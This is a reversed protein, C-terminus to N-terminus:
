SEVEGRLTLFYKYPVVLAYRNDQRWGIHRSAEPYYDKAAWLIGDYWGENGTPYNDGHLKDWDFANIMGILSKIEDPLTEDTFKRIMNNGMYLKYSTGQRECLFRVRDETLNIPELSHYHQSIDSNKM